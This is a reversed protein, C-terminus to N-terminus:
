RILHREATCEPQSHAQASLPFALAYLVCFALLLVMWKLFLRGARLAERM